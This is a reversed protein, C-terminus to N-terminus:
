NVIRWYRQNIGTNTPTAFWFYYYWTGDEVFPGYQPHAVVNQWNTENTNNKFQLIFNTSASYPVNPVSLEIGKWGEFRCCVPKISIKPGDTAGAFIASIALTLPILKM